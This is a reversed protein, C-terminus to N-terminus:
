RPTVQQPLTLKVETDTVKVAVERLKWWYSLVQQLAAEPQSRLWLHGGEM